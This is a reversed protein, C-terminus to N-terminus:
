PGQPRFGPTPMFKRAKNSDEANLKSSTPPPSKQPSGKQATDGNKGRINLKPRLVMNHTKSPSPNLPPPQSQSLDIEDPLSSGQVASGGTTPTPGIASTTPGTKPSFHQTPPGMMLIQLLKKSPWFSKM